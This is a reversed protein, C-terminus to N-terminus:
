LFKAYASEIEIHKAYKIFTDVNTVNVRTPFFFGLFIM